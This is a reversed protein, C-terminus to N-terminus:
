CAAHGLGITHLPQPKAPHDATISFQEPIRQHQTFVARLDAIMKALGNGLNGQARLSPGVHQRADPSVAIGIQCKKAPKNLGM